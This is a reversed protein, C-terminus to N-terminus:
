YAHSLNEARYFSTLYRTIAVPGRLAPITGNKSEYKKVFYRTGHFIMFLFIMGVMGAAFFKAANENNKQRLVKALAAKAKATNAAAQTANAM